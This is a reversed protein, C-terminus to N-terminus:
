VSRRFRPVPFSIDRLAADGARFEFEVVLKQRFRYSGTTGTLLDRLVGMDIQTLDMDESFCLSRVLQQAGPDRCNLAAEDNRADAEDAQRDAEAYHDLQELDEPMLRDRYASGMCDDAHQAANM